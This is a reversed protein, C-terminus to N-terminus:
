RSNVSEKILKINQFFTNSRWSTSHKLKCFDYETKHIPLQVGYDFHRLWRFSKQSCKPMWLFFPKLSNTPHRKNVLGQGILKYWVKFVYQLHNCSKQRNFSQFIFPKITIGNSNRCRAKSFATNWFVVATLLINKSDFNNCKWKDRKIM